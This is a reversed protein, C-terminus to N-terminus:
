NLRAFGGHKVPTTLSHAIDGKEHLEALEAFVNGVAELYLSVYEDNHAFTPYFGSGALFGRELMKGTFLTMLAAGHDHHFAAMTLAPYGTVKLPLSHEQAAKMLGQQVATGIHAVHGPVDEENFVKLTALAATPGVSETWYTSSIFSDQAASMSAERGIIAAIPHGNGLAKAFVALDPDVGFKLHVGGPHLRFGTTVEDFILRAGNEDCQARVGELFGDQPMTSRTPEMVVAALNKGQESIIRKLGGLDNYSFPLATGQLVRPVGNPALGPMLHGVLAEDGSLNAALYWDQWGHYGCFAIVDRGTAARAIRVAVALAEGGARAFRVQEAWPHMELIAEALEVEEPANLTSMAGMQVRRVVAETVAPHAYGLLCSGIGNTTFDILRKGDVTTIECGHAEKFYPPWVDPAYMEPRKSLLQTGGPMLRKAKLYLEQESLLSTEKM